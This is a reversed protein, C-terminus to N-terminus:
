LPENVLSSIKVDVALSCESQSIIAPVEGRLSTNGASILPLRQNWLLFREYVRLSTKVKNKLNIDANAAILEAM